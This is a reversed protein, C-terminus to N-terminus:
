CNVYSNVRINLEGASSRKKEPRQELM